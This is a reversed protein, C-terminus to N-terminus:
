PGALLGGDDGHGDHMTAQEFPDVHSLSWPQPIPEPQSVFTPVQPCIGVNMSLPRWCVVIWDERGPVFRWDHLEYGFPTHIVTAYAGCLQHETFMM